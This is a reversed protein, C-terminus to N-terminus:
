TKGTGSDGALLGAVGHGRGGGPRMRWDGLVQERHRARLAIEALGTVVPEPLVLDSWGVAPTIRRALRELATGNEARAGARVHEAGVEDAGDAAAKARASRAARYVQEPRLRFQSTLGHAVGLEAAWLAEREAVTSAPVELRL